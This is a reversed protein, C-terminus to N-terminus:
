RKQPFLLKIYLNQFSSAQSKGTKTKIINSLLHLHLHLYTSINGTKLLTICFLVADTVLTNELIAPM